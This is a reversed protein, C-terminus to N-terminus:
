NNLCFLKLIINFKGGEQSHGEVGNPSSNLNGSDSSEIADNINSDESHIRLKDEEKFFTRLPSGIDVLLDQPTSVNLIIEASVNNPNNRPL